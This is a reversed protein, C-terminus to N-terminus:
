SYTISPQYVEALVKNIQKLHRQQHACLFRFIDGTKLKLVPLISVPIKIAHLDKGAAQQLLTLLQEQHNIFSQLVAKADPKPAPLHQKAAKMKKQAAGEQAPQILKTFYNGLWGPHFAASSTQPSQALANTLLPLYYNCYTNLHELVQAVSWGGQAPAQQLAKQAASLQRAFSLLKRTEEELTQLLLKSNLTQM